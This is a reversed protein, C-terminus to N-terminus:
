DLVGTGEFKENKVGGEGEFYGGEPAAGIEDLEVEGFVIEFGERVDPVKGVEFEHKEMLVFEIM